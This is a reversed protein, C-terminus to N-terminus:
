SLTDLLRKRLNGFGGNSLLVVGDGPLAAKLIIDAVADISSTAVADIGRLRVAAALAGTDLRESPPLYRGLPAIIVQDAADFAEIYATQHLKRCATASRPEFAAILRGRPHNLKLATLTERVATPHHAFDDYLTVDGPRGLVQQRRAVGKFLPLAERLADLPAGAKVHCLILAAVTNRLNHVGILPTDFVGKKV